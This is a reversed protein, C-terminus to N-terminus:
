NQGPVSSVIREATIKAGYESRLIELIEEPSEACDRSLWMKIVANFGHRFFEIHYDIHRDYYAAADKIDYAAFRLKDGVNLKFYTKYFVPNEKIHYILKTFDHTRIAQGQEEHYLGLVTEEMSKQVAEALDYIDMYNAYFTTRNVEAAACIEKVSIQALEKNQLLRVLAMEIRRRSDQRRKNNPTNM